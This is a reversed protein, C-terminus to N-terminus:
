LSSVLVSILKLVSGLYLVVIVSLHSTPGEVDNELHIRWRALVAIGWSNLFM